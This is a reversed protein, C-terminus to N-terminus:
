KEDDHYKDSEETDEIVGTEKDYTFRTQYNYEDLWSEAMEKRREAEKRAKKVESEQEHNDRGNRVTGKQERISASVMEFATQFAGIQM